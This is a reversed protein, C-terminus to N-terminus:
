ISFAQNKNIFEMLEKQRRVPIPLKFQEPIGKLLLYKKKWNVKNIKVIHHINILHSRDLRFFINSPLHKELNVLTQHTIEERGDTLVIKSSGSKIFQIMVIDSPRVFLDATKTNIIIQQNNKLNGALMEIQQKLLIGGSAKNLAFKNLTAPLEEELNTKLIYDFASHKIAKIAFDDFVTIFVITPNLAPYEKLEMVMDFGGMIPMEIDLLVLDPNHDAITKLGDKGNNATAVVEYRDDKRTIDAIQKVNDPMDDIIITKIKDM